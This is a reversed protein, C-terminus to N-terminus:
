AYVEEADVQICGVNPNQQLVQNTYKINHNGIQHM